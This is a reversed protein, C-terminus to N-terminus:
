SFIVCGFMDLNVFLNCLGLSDFIEYTWSLIIWTSQGVFNMKSYM